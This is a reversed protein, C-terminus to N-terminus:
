QNKVITVVVGLLLLSGAIIVPVKYNNWFGIKKPTKPTKKSPEDENQSVSADGYTSGKKTINKAYGDLVDKNKNYYDKLIKGVKRKPFLKLAEAEADSSSIGSSILEKVKAKRKKCLETVCIFNEYENNVFGLHTKRDNSFDINREM